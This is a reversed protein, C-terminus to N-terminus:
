RVEHLNLKGALVTIVVGLINGQKIRFLLRTVSWFFGLDPLLHLLQTLAWHQETQLHAGASPIRPLVRTIDKHITSMVLKLKSRLCLPGKLNAKPIVPM